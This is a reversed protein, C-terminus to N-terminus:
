IPPREGEFMTNRHLVTNCSTSYYFRSCPNRAAREQIRRTEIPNTGNERDGCLYAAADCV